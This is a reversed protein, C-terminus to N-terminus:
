IEEKVQQITANYILAFKEDKMHITLEPIFTEAKASLEMMKQNNEVNDPDNKQVLINEKFEAMWATYRLMFEQQGPNLQIVEDSAAAAGTVDNTLLVTGASLGLLKLFNRRPNSTNSMM